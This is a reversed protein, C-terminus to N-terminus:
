GRAAPPADDFLPCGESRAVFTAATVDGVVNVVTRCMDLVRDVGLIIAVLMPNIGLSTVVVVIFPISASPLGATGISGLIALGAVGLQQGLSLDLGALQALFLVTVGEYLATGNQNATAGVTLVFSGIEKPVALAEETVRLTTPLTAVSSSTSFATLMITRTRRFFEVPSVKSLFRLALSYVGLLHLALGLLVTLIYWMLASLLDLGFRALNSFVLCAVAYPALHMVWDILKASLAGLGALADLFPAVKGAPMVTTAAGLLLAFFMLHLLNPTDSAIAAVPNAPVITKVVQLLVPDPNKTQTTEQVRKTADAAYRTQLQEATAASIRKGPQILNVLGIGLAVSIGSIMLCYAFSKGGVRGLKRFDGIGAVGLVLSCFVLPVVTMLLLRLFLQGVPEAFQGVVALLGAHGGGFALNLGIGAAAGLGLGTLIRSHLPWRRPQGAPPHIEDSM